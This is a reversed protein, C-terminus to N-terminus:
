SPDHQTPHSLSTQPDTWVLRDGTNSRNVFQRHQFYRHQPPVVPVFVVPMMIQLTQLQGEAGGRCQFRPVNTTFQLLSRPM